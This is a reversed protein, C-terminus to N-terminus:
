VLSKSYPIAMKSIIEGLKWGEQLSNHIVQYVRQPM